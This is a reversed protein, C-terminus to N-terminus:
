EIFFHLFKDNIVKLFFKILFFDKNYRSSSSFSYLYQFIKQYIIKRSRHNVMFLDFKDIFLIELNNIDLEIFIWFM